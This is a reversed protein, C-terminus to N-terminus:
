FSIISSSIILLEGMRIIYMMNDITYMGDIVNLSVLGFPILAWDLIM